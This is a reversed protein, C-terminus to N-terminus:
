RFDLSVAECKALYFGRSTRTGKQISRGQGDSQRVELFATPAEQAAEAVEPTSQIPEPETPRDEAEAAKRVAERSEKEAKEEAALYENLKRRFEAIREEQEQRRKAAEEM